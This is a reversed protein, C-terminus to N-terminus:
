SGWVYLLLVSLNLFVHVGAHALTSAWTSGQKYLYWGLGYCGIAVAQAVIYPIFISSPCAWAAFFHVCLMTKVWAMDATRRWSSYVPESWFLQSLLCIGGVGLGHWVWGTALGVVSSLGTLWSLRCLFDAQDRPVM